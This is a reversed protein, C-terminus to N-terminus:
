PTPVREVVVCAKPRLTLTVEGASSIEAPVTSGRGAWRPDDADLAVRWRGPPIPLAADVEDDGFAFLLVVEDDGSWRRALLV